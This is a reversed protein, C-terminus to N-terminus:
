RIKFEKFFGKIKAKIQGFDESTFPSLKGEGILVSSCDRFNQIVYRESGRIHEAIELVDPVNLLEKCVTTRFEYDVPSNRILVISEKIADVDVTRGAVESYKEFPAKIDMAIYDIMRNKILKKLVKPATGNTDLKALLGREKVKELFPILGGQLTPEGGSICIGDLMNRRKELHKLAQEEHIIEGEGIVLPYNHCYPCRFNCGGTFYVACIRDPYDIFSSKVQGLFEIKRM